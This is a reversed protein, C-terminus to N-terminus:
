NTLKQKEKQKEKEIEFDQKIQNYFNAALQVSTQHVVQGTIYNNNLHVSCLTEKNQAPNTCLDYSCMLKWQGRNFKYWHGNRLRRENEKVAMQINKNHIQCLGLKINESICNEFRCIDIWKYGNWKQKKELSGDIRTTKISGINPIIPMNIIDTSNM